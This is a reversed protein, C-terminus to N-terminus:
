GRRLTIAAIEAPVGLRVPFGSWLGAGPSVYLKMDGTHLYASVTGANRVLVSTTLESSGTIGDLPPPPDAEPKSVQLKVEAASAQITLAKREVFVAEVGLIAFIVLILIM